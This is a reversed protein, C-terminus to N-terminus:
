SRDMDMLSDTRSTWIVNRMARIRTTRTMKRTRRLREAVTMGLRARGMEMMPVKATIYTAPYVRSL